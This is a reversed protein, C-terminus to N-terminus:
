GDVDALLEPTVKAVTYADPQLSRKSRTSIASAFAFSGFSNFDSIERSRCSSALLGSGAAANVGASRLIAACCALAEIDTNVSCCFSMSRMRASTSAAIFTMARIVANPNSCVFIFGFCSSCAIAFATSSIPREIAVAESM